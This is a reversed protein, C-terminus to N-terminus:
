RASMESAMLLTQGIQSVAAAISESARVPRGAFYLCNVGGLCLGDNLVPFNAIAQIGLALIQAHDDFNERIAQAGDSLFPQRHRVLHEAWPAGTLPKSGDAAFAEPRSSFIRRALGQEHDYRLVTFVDCGTLRLLEDVRSEGTM